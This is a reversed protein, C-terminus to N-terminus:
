CLGEEDSYRTFIINKYVKKFYRQNLVKPGYRPHASRVFTTFERNKTLLLGTCMFM